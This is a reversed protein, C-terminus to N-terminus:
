RQWPLRRRRRTPTTGHASAAAMAATASVAPRPAAGLAPRYSQDTIRRRFVYYTWAQYALVIPVVVLAVVTMVKLSRRYWATQLLATLFALGITVPILFFHNVTTFAFQWRALDERM